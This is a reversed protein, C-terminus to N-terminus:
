LTNIINWGLSKAFKKLKPDPNVAVPIGVSLLTDIDYFSDTYFYSQTLDIKNERAFKKMWYTKGRGICIPEVVRGTFYGDKTELDVAIVNKVGIHQAIPEILIRFNGSLIAVIFGDKEHQRILEVAKSSIYKKARDFVYLSIDLFDKERLGKIDKVNERLIDEGKLTNLRYRLLWVYWLFIKLRSVKGLRILEEGLLRYLDKKVIVYDLDFFAGKKYDSSSMM